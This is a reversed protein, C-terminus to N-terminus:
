NPRWRCKQRPEFAARTAHWFSLLIWSASPLELPQPMESPFVNLGLPCVPRDSDTDLSFWQSLLTKNTWNPRYVSEGRSCESLLVPTTNPAKIKPKKRAACVLCQRVWRKATEIMGPWYFRSIKVRAVTKKQGLHGATCTNHLESFVAKFMTRVTTVRYIPPANPNPVARKLYLVGNSSMFLQDYHAVWSKLVKTKGAIMQWTPKTEQKLWSKMQGLKPDADQLYAIAQDSWSTPLRDQFFKEQQQAVAMKTLTDDISSEMHNDTIANQPKLVGTQSQDERAPNTSSDPQSPATSPGLAKSDSFAALTTPIPTQGSHGEM